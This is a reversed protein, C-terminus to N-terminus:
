VWFYQRHNRHVFIISLLTHAHTHFYVVKLNFAKKYFNLQSYQNELGAFPNAHRSSSDFLGSLDALIASDVGAERLRLEVDDFVDVLIDQIFGTTDKLICDMTSQPLKYLEQVKLIWTAAAKKKPDISEINEFEELESFEHEDESNNSHSPVQPISEEDTHFGYVHNRFVEFKRFTRPCGSLGCVIQFGPKQSHAQRIHKLFHKLDPAQFACFCCNKISDM